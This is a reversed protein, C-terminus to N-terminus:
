CSVSFGYQQGSLSSEGVISSADGSDEVVISNLLEVMLQPDVSDPCPREEKEGSEERPDDPEKVLQEGQQESPNEESLGSAQEDVQEDSWKDLEEGWQEHLTEDLVEDPPDPGQEHPLEQPVQDRLEDSEQDPWHGVQVDRGEDVQEGPEADEKEDEEDEVKGHSFAHPILDELVCRYRELTELNRRIDFGSIFTNDVEREKPAAYHHYHELANYLPINLVRELCAVVCGTRHKGQNCHILLPWNAPNLLLDIIEEINEADMRIKDGKNPRVDFSYIQVRHQRLWESYEVKEPPGVLIVITRVGLHELFPLNESQPYGSRYINGELVAGFNPPPLRSQLRSSPIQNPSYHQVGSPRWRDLPTTAARSGFYPDKLFAYLPM